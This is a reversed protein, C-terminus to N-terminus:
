EYTLVKPFLRKNYCITIVISKQIQTRYIVIKQTIDTALVDAGERVFADAASGDIGQGAAILVRQGQLRM